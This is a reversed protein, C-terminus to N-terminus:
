PTFKVKRRRALWFLVGGAALLVLAGAAISGAAAGTVPLGGGGESDEGGGGPTTGSGGPTSGGGNNGGGNDGGGNNGGGNGDGPCDVDALPVTVPEAGNLTFTVETAESRAFTVEAGEGPAVTVTKTADGYRADLSRSRGGEPNTMQVSVTTCDSTVTVSPQACDAPESWDYSFDDMGDATVKIPGAGAPVTVTGGEGPEVTVTKSFGNATVAFDVAYKSLEGTNSLTLTVTGDCGPKPEVAPTQCGKSGGNYWGQPGASRGGLGASSGLKRDGYRAGGETIEPIIDDQGGFFLDVQANCAPLGANLEVSRNDNTITATASDFLYQPVSFQPKPAYYTVLTVPEADCLKIDDDLTVTAGARGEALGFTHHFTADAARVCPKEAPKCDGDLQVSAKNSPDNAGATATFSISATQTTGPIRAVFLESSATGNRSRPNLQLGDALKREPDGTSVPVSAPTTSFQSVTAYGDASNTIKWNIVYEGTATDCSSSSATVDVISGAAGAPAAIAVLGTLGLLAGAAIAAARHVLTRM